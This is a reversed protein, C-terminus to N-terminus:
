HSILRLLKMADVNHTKVMHRIQLDNAYAYYLNPLDKDLAFVLRYGQRYMETFKNEEDTLTDIVNEIYKLDLNAENYLKLFEEEPLLM